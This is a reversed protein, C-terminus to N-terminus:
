CANYTFILHVSVYILCFLSSTFLCFLFFTLLILCSYDTFLADMHWSNLMHAVSCNLIDQHKHSVFVLLFLVLCDWRNVFTYSTEQGSGQSDTDVIEWIHNTDQFFSFPAFHRLTFVSILFSMIRFFSVFKMSLLSRLHARIKNIKSDLCLQKYNKLCRIEHM